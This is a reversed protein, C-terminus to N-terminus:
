PDDEAVSVDAALRNGGATRPDRNPELRRRATCAQMEDVFERVGRRTVFVHLAPAILQREERIDHGVLRITIGNLADVRPEAEPGLGVFARARLRERGDGGAAHPQVITETADFAGPLQRLVDARRLPEHGADPQLAVSLDPVALSGHEGVPRGGARVALRAPAARVHERESWVAPDFAHRTEPHLSRGRVNRGSSGTATRASQLEPRGPVDARACIGLLEQYYQRSVAADGAQAAAKAAGAIGRFRNPEKTMTKRFEALAETPQKMELLMDGLLERAPALPGPSIASKETRDERDAAERMAALADAGRGEALALWASAGLRQISVQEVWYSEKEQRLRDIANQLEGVAARATERDGSRAGGLARAFWTIADAYAYQSPQVKLHAAETWTGRELAYRASIAAAAYRGAMPPAASSAAAPSSRGAIDAVSDVVRRAAADQGTQLYAYVEYDMAHLEEATAGAKQAAAASLINTDISDQWYGLRTFTHSPMHLAHPADPAIKAYRRAAELAHPALAPVDYSHIIYHALGPHEPQSQWLKELIAGAKLQDAYTKDAPDAAAALSLAYFASAEPDDAYSAALRGMADRYRLMRARQDLTDANDFLAAGAAIYDRERTTKAGAAKARAFTDRGAQVQASPRQAISFPNGWQALGIGWLAIGCSADKDAVSKFTEIAPGFEFSHLLAMGRAFVPQLDASCSNVFHVTGLKGPDAHQHEQGMVARGVFLGVVFVMLNRM